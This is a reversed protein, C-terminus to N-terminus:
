LNKKVAMLFTALARNVKSKKVETYDGGGLLINVTPQNIGLLALKAHLNVRASFYRPCEMLFHSISEPISQCHPCNPSDVLQMKHMNKNLRTYGTRLRAMEIELRRNTNLQWNEQKWVTKHEGLFLSSSDRTWNDKLRKTILGRLVILLESKHIELRAFEQSLLSEKAAKDVVENGEVGVHAPVWQFKLSIRREKLQMIIELCSYILEQVKANRSLLAQLASKSDSLILFNLSVFNNDLIWSLAMKISLLEATFISNFNRFRFKSLVDFHPVYFSGGVRMNNEVEMKSADTYIKIFNDYSNMTIDTIKKLINAPVNKSLKVCLNDRIEIGLDIWPPIPSVVYSTMDRMPPLSLETRINDARLIAPIKYSLHRWPLTRVRELDNLVETKVINHVNLYQAGVFYKIVSGRITEMVSCMSLEGRLAIISTARLAGSIIRLGVNQIVELKDILSKCASGYAVAGYQIKSLITAKYIKMLTYRDAGWTISSSAKMLNLRSKCSEVLYLVHDRWTLYPSDFMLGLYKYVRSYSLNQSGYMLTIPQTLKKRTFYQFSTKEVNVKLGWQNVWTRFQNLAAQMKREADIATDASTFLCIDDAFASISVDLFEPIDSVFLIYLLPSLIAGQPVGQTGLNRSTSTVGLLGVQFTRNQLYNKLWGLMRGAIGLQSMKYLVALHSVRDFAKSMDFYVTIVVKKEKIGRCIFHELRVLQDQTSRQKRFGAQYEPLLNRHELFWYLRNYVLREFVKGLTSLLSIPRYSIPLDPDKGPKLFPLVIAVKWQDPFFSLDWCCNYIRLLFNTLDGTLHSLFEFPVDDAGAAKNSPLDKLVADLESRKFPINYAQHSFTIAHHLEQRLFEENGIPNSDNYVSFYHDAFLESKQEASLFSNSQLPYTDPPQKKKISNFVKWINSMTSDSTLNSCYNQWYERRTKRIIRKFRAAARKYNLMNELSYHRKFIQKLRRKERKAKHCDDNWWPASLKTSYTGTSHKFVKGATTTLTEVFGDINEQIDQKWNMTVTQLLLLWQPWLDKNFKWRGRFKITTWHPCVDVDLTVPYHDSSGLVEGKKLTCGPLLDSSGFFLDLTSEENMTSDFRTGMDLPTFLSLDSSETIIEDLLVGAHNGGGSEWSVHRANFDGGIIVRGTFFSCYHLLEEKKFLRPPCYAFLFNIHGERTLVKLGISEMNGGGFRDLKILNYTLNRQILIAVGGGNENLRDCRFIDYGSFKLNKGPKLWTETLGVINPKVEDLYKQFEELNNYISRCNWLVVKIKEEM